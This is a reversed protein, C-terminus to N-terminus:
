KKPRRETTCPHFVVSLLIKIVSSSFICTATNRKETMLSKTL